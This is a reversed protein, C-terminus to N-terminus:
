WARPADVGRTRPPGLGRPHTGLSFNEEAFISLAHNLSDLPTSDLAPFSTQTKAQSEPYLERDRLLTVRSAVTDDDDFKSRRALSLRINKATNTSFVDTEGM